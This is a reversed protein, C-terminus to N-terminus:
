TKGVILFRADLPLDLEIEQGEAKHWWPRSRTRARRWLAQWEAESDNWRVEGRELVLEGSFSVRISGGEIGTARSFVRGSTEIMIEGASPFRVHEGAKPIIVVDRDSGNGEIRVECLPQGEM